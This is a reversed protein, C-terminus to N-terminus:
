RAKLLGDLRQVNVLFAGTALEKLAPSCQAPEFRQREALSQWVPPLQHALHVMGAQPDDAVHFVRSVGATILRAMCMPCPELSTYLTYGRLPENRRMMEFANIVVMEAHLDSRFMPSFVQNHGSIVTKGDPDVLIAGIGFNGDELAEHAEAICAEAARDDPYRPDVPCARLEGRMTFLTVREADELKM